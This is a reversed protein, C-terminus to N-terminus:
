LGLSSRTSLAYNAPQQISFGIVYSSNRHPGIRFSEIPSEHQRRGKEVLRQQGPWLSWDRRSCLPTLHHQLTHTQVRGMRVCCRTTVKALALSLSLHSVPEESRPVCRWGTGCSPTTENAPLRHNQAM